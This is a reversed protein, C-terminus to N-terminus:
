HKQDRQDRAQQRGEGASLPTAEPSLTLRVALSLAPGLRTPVRLWPVRWGARNDLANTIGPEDLKLGVTEPIEVRPM